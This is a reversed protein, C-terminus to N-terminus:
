FSYIAKVGVQSAIVKGGPATARNYRYEGLLNFNKAATYDVTYTLERAIAPSGGGAGQGRVFEGRLSGKIQDCFQLSGYLAVGKIVVSGATSPTHFYDANLGLSLAQTAQLEAVLDTVDVRNLPAADTGTTDRYHSLKVNAGAMPALKVGVEIAKQPNADV